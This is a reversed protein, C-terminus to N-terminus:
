KLWGRLETVGADVMEQVLPNGYRGARPSWRRIEEMKWLLHRLKAPDDGAVEVIQDLIPQSVGKERLMNYTDTAASMAEKRAIGKVDILPTKEGEKPAGAGARVDRLMKVMKGARSPVSPLPRAIIKLRRQEAQDETITGKAFDADIADIELQREELAKGIVDPEELFLDALEKGGTAANVANGRARLKHMKDIAQEPTMGLSELIPAYQPNAVDLTFKQVLADDNTIRQLETHLALQNSSAEATAEDKARTLGFTFLAERTRALRDQVAAKKADEAQQRALNLREQEIGIRQTERRGGEEAMVEQRMLNQRQFGEATKQSSAAREEAKTLRTEGLEALRRQTAGTAKAEALREIDMGEQALRGRRGEEREEKLLSIREGHRTTELAVDEKRERQRTQEQEQMMQRRAAEQLGPAIASSFGSAFAGIGAGLDSM